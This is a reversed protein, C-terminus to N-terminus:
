GIGHFPDYIIKMIEIREEPTLILEKLKGGRLRCMYMTITEPSRDFHAALRSVSWHNIWRLKALETLDTIPRRWQIPYQEGM